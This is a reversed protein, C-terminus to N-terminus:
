FHGNEADTNLPREYCIYPLLSRAPKDNWRFGYNNDSEMLSMFHEVNGANDPQNTNWNPYKIESADSVWVWKGEGADDSGGIWKQETLRIQNEEFIKFLRFHDVRTRIEALIMGRSQCLRSANYWTVMENYADGSFFYSIGDITTMVLLFFYEHYSNNKFLNKSDLTFCVVTEAM